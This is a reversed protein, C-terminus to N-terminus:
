FNEIMWVNSEDTVGNIALHHGDPSPVGWMMGLFRTRQEWLDSVHGELDIYLLTALDGRYNTAYLGKGDASWSPQRQTCSLVWGGQVIVNRPQGGSLPVIRIRNEGTSIALRSGDPSLDWNGCWGGLEGTNIRTVERGRGQLPDFATFVLHKGDSSSESLLCLTAPRQACRYDGASTTLVVQSPGGAVPVRMLQVPVSTNDLDDEKAARLYLIWSGDPSMRASDEVGPGTVIREASDQDLAQKFIHRNGSRDSQFIVAKSDPTWASAYDNREDLTLRRPATKLRTGNAEAESVYVDTQFTIRSAVLRKGDATGEPLAFPFGAWNTIRRPKGTPKGTRADVRIEWLNSDASVEESESLSYILRGDPLWWFGQAPTACLKTDSVLVEPPGGVLDRDEIQCEESNPPPYRMYVLRRSDPSWWVPFGLSGGGVLKHPEEGNAGMLWTELPKGTSPNGTFFAILSGDPSVSLASADDRIERSTWGLVSIVWVSSRAASSRGSALLKTGDPFWGTPFWRELTNPKPVTQTEGTQILQLRIGGQDSYALFKGDPSIHPHDAPDGPPNATLRRAKLEGQPVSHRRAFWLLGSVVFIMLTTALAILWRRQLPVAFRRRHESVIFGEERAAGGSDTDRKLRKLDARMESAHQYRLERDKEMAKHVIEELKPPLEPNLKCPATPSQSLIANFIVATTSGSFARQGTAMEYLVAGFSFLDTRTDLDEGRAQEPSMYAVTGIAAGPNTLQEERGETPLMSLAAALPRRGPVLKALGFDLIKAQSRATVFINAPKIDRHVIGRSHAADLGDAIQITFDLVEDIKFPKAAIHHGLAHGELLEMAIFPRGEHEGFEYVTCINPHNLASAARAEREFRELAQPDRVPDERLFKLAVLRGLRTDEGKYVEGMGGGGLKELIRYHSVTLGSMLGAGSSQSATSQFQDQAQAPTAVELAPAELATEARQGEALRSEVERRLAEDGRCAQELFDARQGKRQELAAHCLREIQQWREPDM